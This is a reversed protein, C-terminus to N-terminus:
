RLFETAKLAAEKTTAGFIFLAKHCFDAGEIGSEKELEEGRLGGWSEPFYKKHEFSGSELPVLSVIWHGNGSIHPSVLAYVDGYDIFEGASLGIDTVIVSKDDAEEYLKVAYEKMEQKARAKEIVRTLYDYAFDVAKLFQADMDMDSQWPPLYSNIVSFLGVPAIEYENLKYLAVGVDGADIPLALNDDIKKAIEKSGSIQEGYHKWVLGFAAYDFGVERKPAGIQHHDFRLKDPEYLGGVDVVWDAKDIVDQDRTRIVKINEKGEIMMISAVAFVDDPHFKGNHTAVTKM